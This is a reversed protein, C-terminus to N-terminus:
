WFDEEVEVRYAEKMDIKERKEVLDVKMGKKEVKTKKEREFLVEVVGLAKDLIM